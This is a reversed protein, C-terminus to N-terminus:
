SFGTGGRMSAKRDGGITPGLGCGARHGTVASWHGSPGATHGDHSSSPVHSTLWLAILPLVTFLLLRLFVSVAPTSSPAARSALAAIPMETAAACAFGGTFTAFDDLLAHDNPTMDSVWHVQGVSGAPALGFVTDAEIM